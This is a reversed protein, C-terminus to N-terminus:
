FGEVTLDPKSNHYPSASRWLEIKSPADENGHLIAFHFEDVDRVDMGHAKYLPTIHVEFVWHISDFSDTGVSDHRTLVTQISM